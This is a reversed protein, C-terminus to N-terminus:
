REYMIIVAIVIDNKVANENMLLNSLIMSPNCLFHFFLIGSRGNLVPNQLLITFKFTLCKQSFPDGQNEKMWQCVLLGAHFVLGYLKINLLFSLTTDAGELGPRTHSAPQWCFSSNTTLHTPGLGGRRASVWLPFHM